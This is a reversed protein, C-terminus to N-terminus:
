ERKRENEKRREKEKADERLNRRYKAGRKRAFGDSHAQKRNKREIEGKKRM